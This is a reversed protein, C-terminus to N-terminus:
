NGCRVGEGAKGVARGDDGGSAPALRLECSCETFVTSCFPIFSFGSPPFTGPITTLSKGEWGSVPDGSDLLLPDTTDQALSSEGYDVPFQAQGCWEWLVVGVLSTHLQETPKRCWDGGPHFNLDGWEGSAM